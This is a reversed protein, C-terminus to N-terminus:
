TTLCTTHWIFSVRNWLNDPFNSALCTAHIGGEAALSFSGGTANDGDITVNFIERFYNIIESYLIYSLIGVIRAFNDLVYYTLCHLFLIFLTGSRFKWHPGPTGSKFKLPTGPGLTPVRPGPGVKVGHGDLSTM